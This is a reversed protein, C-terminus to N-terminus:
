DAANTSYGQVNVVSGDAKTVDAAIFGFKHNFKWLIKKVDSEEGKIMTGTPITEEVDITKVLWFGYETDDDTSKRVVERVVKKNGVNFEWKDGVKADFKVLTFPKKKDGNSYVYDYIGNDTIKGEVEYNSGEFVLTAVVNGDNNEDITIEGNDYGSAGASWYNGVKGMTQEPDTVENNLLDCTSFTLVIACFFACLKTLNKM